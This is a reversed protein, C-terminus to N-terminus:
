TRAGGLLCFSRSCKGNDDLTLLSAVDIRGRWAQIESFLYARQSGGLARPVNNTLANTAFLYRQRHMEAVRTWLGRTYSGPLIRKKAHSSEIRCVDSRNVIVHRPMPSPDFKSFTISRLSRPSTKSKM